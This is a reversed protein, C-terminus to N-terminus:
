STQLGLYLTYLPLCHNHLYDGDDKAVSKRHPYAPEKAWRPMPLYEFGAKTAGTVGSLYQKRVAGPPVVAPTAHAPDINYVGRVNLHGKLSGIFPNCDQIGSSFTMVDVEGFDFADGTMTAMESLVEKVFAGDNAFPGLEKGKARVIYVFASKRRSALSQAGWRHVVHKALVFEILDKSLPDAWGLEEVTSLSQGFSQSICLMTREPKGSAPLLLIVARESGKNAAVFVGLRGTTPTTVGFSFANKADGPKFSSEAIVPISPIPIPVLNAVGAQGLVYQNISRVVAPKPPAAGQFKGLLSLAATLAAATLAGVVGDAKLKQDTQFERVRGLTLPGFIGDDTLPEFQSPLRNLSQQLQKVADGRSGFAIRTM